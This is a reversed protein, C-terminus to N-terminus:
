TGISRQNINTISFCFRQSSPLGDVLVILLGYGLPSICPCWSAKTPLASCTAVEERVHRLSRPCSMMTTAEPLPNFVISCTIMAWRLKWRDCMCITNSCCWFVMISRYVMWCWQIDNLDVVSDSTPAAHIQHDWFDPVMRAGEDDGDRLRTSNVTALGHWALFPWSSHFSGLHSQKWDNRTQPQGVGRFFILTWWNPYHFEWYISLWEFIWPELWWWGSELRLKRLGHNWDDVELIIKPYPLLRQYVNVCSHFMVMSDIALDVIRIAM